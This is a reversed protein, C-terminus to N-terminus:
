NRVDGPGGTGRLRGVVVGRRDVLVVVGDRREVLRWAEADFQVHHGKCLRLLNEESPPGGLRRPVVHSFDLFSRLDCGEVWCVGGHLRLLARRVGASVRDGPAAEPPAGEAAAARAADAAEMRDARVEPDNRELFDDCVEELAAGDTAPLANRRAVIERSRTFVARGRRSVLLTLYVPPERIRLEERRERVIRWLDRASLREADRLWDEGPRGLGPTRLFEALALAKAVSLDRALVRGGLEPRAEDAEALAALDRGEQFSLGVRECYLAFTTVGFPLFADARRLELLVRGLRVQEGRIRGVASLVEADLDELDRRPPLPPGPPARPPGAPPAPASM